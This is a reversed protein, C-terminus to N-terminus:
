FREGAVEELANIEYGLPPEVGTVEDIGKAFPGEVTPYKAGAGVVSSKIEESYRGRAIAEEGVTYSHYTFGKPAESDTTPPQQAALARIDELLARRERNTM